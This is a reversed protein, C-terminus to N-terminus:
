KFNEWFDEDPHEFNKVKRKDYHVFDCYPDGEVLTMTRSLVFNPNIYQMKSFDGYCELLSALELDPLESYVEGWMCRNVKLYYKDGEVLSILNHTKFCGNAFLSDALEEITDWKNIKDQYLEYCLDTFEKALELVPERTLIEILSYVLYYLPNFEGRIYDKYFIELEGGEKYQSNYKNFDLFHLIANEILPIYEPLKTIWKHESYDFDINKTLENQAKTIKMEELKEEYISFLQKFVSNDHKAVIKLFREVIGMERTIFDKLTIKTKFNEDYDSCIKKM